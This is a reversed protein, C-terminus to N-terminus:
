ESDEELSIEEESDTDPQYRKKATRKPRSAVARKPRSGRSPAPKDDMSDDDDEDSLEEEDRTNARKKGRAAKKAGATKARKRGVPAGEEPELGDVFTGESIAIINKELTDAVNSSSASNAGASGGKSRRGRVAQLFFANTTDDHLADKYMKFHSALREISAESHNLMSLCYALYRWSRKEPSNPFQQCLKDVLTSLDRQLDVFSLLFQLISKATDFDLNKRYLSSITDPLLPMLANDKAALEKFFLRAADVIATESDELCVAIDSMHGRPKVMNTLVLHSVVVLSTKRVSEDTDGLRDYLSTSQGEFLNPFRMAIDGMLIVLNRRISPLTTEDSSINQITELHSKCAEQSALMCKSLTQVAVGYLTPDTKRLSPSQCVKVVLPLFQGILRKTVMAHQAMLRAREEDHSEGAAEAGVAGLELEIAEPEEEGDGDQGKKSKPKSVDNQKKQAKKLQNNTVIQEIFVLQKVVIHGLIFMIRGLIGSISASQPGFQTSSVLGQRSDGSARSLQAALKRIVESLIVVPADSLHYITNIAQEAAAYWASSEIATHRSGRPMANGTLTLFNSITVISAADFPPNAKALTSKANDEEDDQESKASKSASKKASAGKKAKSSSAAKAGAKKSSGRKGRKNSTEDEEDSEDYTPGDDEEDEDDKSQKAISKKNATSSTSSEDEPKKIKQLAIFTWKALNPNEVIEPGLGLKLLHPILKEIANPFTSSLMTLIILAGCRQEPKFEFFSWLVPLIQSSIRDAAALERLLEELSTLQGLSASQTLSILNRAIFVPMDRSAVQVQPTLYLDIYAQTAAEKIGPEKSCVLMLVTRIGAMAEETKFTHAKALLKIAETVDGINKSGLLTTVIPLAAHILHIFKITHTCHDKARKAIAIQEEDLQNEAIIAADPYPVDEVKAEEKAEDVDMSAEVVPSDEEPNEDEEELEEEIVKGTTGRKTSATKRSKGKGKKSKPATEGDENEAQDDVQMASDEEIAVDGEDLELDEEDKGVSKSKSTKRRKNTKSSRSEKASQKSKPKMPTSTISQIGNANLTARVEALRQEWVPLSLNPGYPNNEILDHLLEIAAKRVNAAKDSLRKFAGETAVLYRSLPIAKASALSAWTSLVRSRTYSSVDLFRDTLIDLIADLTAAIPPASDKDEENGEGAEKGNSSKSKKSKKSKQKSSKSQKSQAGGEFEENDEEEDGQGEEDDEDDGDEQDENSQPRVDKFGEIVLTGLGQIVGSRVTYAENELVEIVLSVCPLVLKPFQACTDSILAAINKALTGNAAIDKSPIKAVERFLESLFPGAAPDHKMSEVLDLIASVLTESNRLAHILRMIIDSGARFTVILPRLLAMCSSRISASKANLPNEVLSFALHAFLNLLSIDPSWIEIIPLEILAVVTSLIEEREKEIHWISVKGQHAMLAADESQQKKGKRKTPAMM